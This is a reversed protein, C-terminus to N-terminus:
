RSDEAQIDYWMSRMNNEQQKKADPSLKRQEIIQKAAEFQEKSVIPEHTDTVYYQSKEGNNYKMTFPLTNTTYKKQYLSDGIYRENRLIYMVTTSYWQKAKVPLPAHIKNLDNAIAVTGM